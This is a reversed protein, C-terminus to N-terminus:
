GGHRRAIYAGFGVHVLGFGVALVVNSWFWPLPLAIGGALVFMAGM